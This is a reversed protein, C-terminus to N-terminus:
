EKPAPPLLGLARNYCGAAAAKVTIVNGPLTVPERARSCAFNQVPSSM